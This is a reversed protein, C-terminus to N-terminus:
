HDLIGYTFVYRRPSVGPEKWHDKPFLFPDCIAGTKLEGNQRLAMGIPTLIWLHQETTGFMKCIHKREAGPDFGPDAM